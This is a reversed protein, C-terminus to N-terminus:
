YVITGSFVLEIPWSPDELGEWTVYATLRVRGSAQAFRGTGGFITYEGEQVVVPPPPAVTDARYTAWIEDGNAATFVAQGLEARGDYTPCHTSSYTVLGLHTVRGEAAGVTTLIPAWWGAVADCVGTGEFPFTAEGKVSGWFPRAVPDEGAGAASAAVVVLGAAVLVHAWARNKMAM